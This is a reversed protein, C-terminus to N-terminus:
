WFVGSFTKSEEVGCSVLDSSCFGLFSGFFIVIRFLSGLFAGVSM